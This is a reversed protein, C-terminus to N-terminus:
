HTGRAADEIVKVVADPHSVYVAHSSNVEEIHSNARKAFFEQMEPANAQDNKTILNWSPITRWAAATTKFGVAAKAVPRQTAAMAAATARDVDAAFTARFGDQALYLDDGATGDAAVTPVEVLSQPPAPHEIPVDSPGFPTEGVDPVLAALYVLAKVNPDGAAANTIVAGGYSHGVLVIPGHISRLVDKAAATDTPLGRLPNSVTRVPYGDQTLRAIVTKFGSSDAFAGHVLVVTPKAEQTATAPSATAPVAMAAGVAVLAAASTAVLTKRVPIRRAMSFKM